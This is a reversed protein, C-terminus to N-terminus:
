LVTVDTTVTSNQDKAVSATSSTNSKKYNEVALAAIVDSVNSNDGDKVSILHDGLLNKWSEKVVPRQGTWTEVNIHYVDWNEKAEKLMDVATMDAQLKDDFIGNLSEKYYDEHTTEDGITILLGKKGRKIADCVVHRSAFYWALSYSESIGPGGHGELYTNTLWKEMLVDSAEFQGAQFPAEDCTHDGIAIFCVQPCTVGGEIIKKMMEPFDHKILREPVSGMSGTVDLAVIIPYTEPHEANECCERIKGKINMEENLCYGSFIQTTAMSKYTASREVACCYSYSGGGM